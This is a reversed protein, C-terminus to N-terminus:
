DNPLPSLFLAHQGRLDTLFFYYIAYCLPSLLIQRLCPIETAWLLGTILFHLCQKALCHPLDLLYIFESTTSIHPSMATSFRGVPSLIWFQTQFILLLLCGKPLANVFPLTSLDWVLLSFNLASSIGSSNYLQNSFSPLTDNRNVPSIFPQLSM